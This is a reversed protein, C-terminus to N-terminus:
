VINERGLERFIREVEAHAVEIFTKYEDTDQGTPDPIDSAPGTDEYRLYETLRFIKPEAAPFHKIMAEKQSKEMVLIADASKVMGPTLPSSRHGSLSFGNM